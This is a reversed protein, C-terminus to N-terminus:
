GFLTQTIKANMIYGILFLCTGVRRTPLQLRRCRSEDVGREPLPRRGFLSRRKTMVKCSDPSGPSGGNPSLLLLSLFLRVSPESIRILVTIRVRAGHGHSHGM